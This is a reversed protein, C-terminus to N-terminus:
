TQGLVVIRAGRQLGVGPAVRVAVAVAVVGLRGHRVAVEGGPAGPEGAVAVVGLGRHVGAGGLDAVGVVDVLVAGAGGVVGIRAGDSEGGDPGVGVAVAEAVVVGGGDVGAVGDRAGHARRAVAVVRVRADEGAGS